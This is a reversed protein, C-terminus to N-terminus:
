CMGGGMRCHTIETINCIYILKGTLLKKDTLIIYGYDLRSRKSNELGNHNKELNNCINYRNNSNNNNKNSLLEFDRLINDLGDLVGM